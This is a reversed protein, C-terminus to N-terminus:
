GVFPVVGLLAAAGYAFFVGTGFCILAFVVNLWGGAQWFYRGAVVGSVSFMAPIIWMFEM